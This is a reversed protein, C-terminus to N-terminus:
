PSVGLDAFRDERESDVRYQIRTAYARMSEPIALRLGPYVSQGISQWQCTDNSEAACLGIALVHARVNGINAVGANDATRALAAVARAPQVRVLAGWVFSVQVDTVINDQAAAPTADEIAGVPRIYVRYVTEREPRGLAVVRVQRTAGGSLVFKGPSAVLGGDLASVPTEHEAPTAPDIVKRVTVEVYQTLASQSTVRIISVPQGTGAIVSAIPSVTVNAWAPVHPWMTGVAVLMAMVRHNRISM